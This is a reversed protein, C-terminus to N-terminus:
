KDHRDVMGSLALDDFLRNESPIGVDFKYVEVSLGFRLGGDWRNFAVVERTGDTWHSGKFPNWENYTVFSERKEAHGGIGYAGYFGAEPVIHIHEIVTFKYIITLPLELYHMRFNFYADEPHKDTLTNEVGNSGKVSFMLGSNIRLNNKFEYRGTVGVTPGTKSYNRYM